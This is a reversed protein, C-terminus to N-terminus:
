KKVRMERNKTEWLQCGQLLVICICYSSSSDTMYHHLYKPVHCIVCILCHYMLVFVLGQSTSYGRTLSYMMEQQVLTPCVLHLRRALTETANKRCDIGVGYMWRHKVMWLCEIILALTAAYRFVSVSNDCNWSDRTVPQCHSFSLFSDRFYATFHKLSSRTFIFLKQVVYVHLATGTVLPTNQTNFHGWM